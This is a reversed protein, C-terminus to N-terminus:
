KKAIIKVMPWFPRVHTALWKSAPQLFSPLFEFVLPVDFRDVTVNRFGAKKHLSILRSTAFSLEYGFRIHKAGLLKIHVIEMIQRVLPFDPINGWLQRYTLSGIGLYPVTNFSVGKKRTVRGLENVSQATDPFHEIVGGGYILDVVGEKLPMQLIDGQILLYNKIKKEELMKKAILLANYCFDIGIVIDFELALNQGMFFLGSGIELYVKHGGTASTILQNYVSEHYTKMYEKYEKKYKNNKMQDVYFQEWKAISLQLDSSLDPLLIPIGDKVLYLSSCKRCCLMKADKKVLTGGCAPCCLLQLVSNNM